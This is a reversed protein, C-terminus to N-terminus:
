NASTLFYDAESKCRLKDGSWEGHTAIAAPKTVIGCGQRALCALTQGQTM